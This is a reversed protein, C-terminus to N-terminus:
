YVRAIHSADFRYVSLVAGTEPDNQVGVHLIGKLIITDGYTIDAGPEDAPVSAFVFHQIQPPGSFCCNAISYCLEFNHAHGATDPSWTQGILAVKKGDMARWQSPIDENRAKIQDLDFAGMAQLNLEAYEGGSIGGTAALRAWGYFSAVIVAGLLLGVVVLGVLRGTIRRRWSPPCPVPADAPKVAQAATTSGPQSIDSTTVGGRIHVSPEHYGIKLLDAM